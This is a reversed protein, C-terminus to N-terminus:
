NCSIHGINYTIYLNFSQGTISVGTSVPKFAWETGSGLSVHADEQIQSAMKGRTIPHSAEWICM